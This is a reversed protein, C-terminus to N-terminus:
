ILSFLSDITEIKVKESYEGYENNFQIFLNKYNEKFDPSKVDPEKELTQFLMKKMRILGPYKKEGDKPFLTNILYIENSIYYIILKELLKSSNIIGLGKEFIKDENMKLRKKFEENEVKELDNEFNYRRRPIAWNLSRGLLLMEYDSQTINVDSLYKDSVLVIILDHILDNAKLNKKFKNKTLWFM